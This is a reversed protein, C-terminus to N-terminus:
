TLSPYRRELARMLKRELAEMTMRDGAREHDYGALHLVGHIVMFLLNEKRKRIYLPNLYVEGLFVGRRDPRPVDETAQFSLVNAQMLANGVLFVDVASKGRRLRALAARVADAVEGELGRFSASSSSVTVEGRM